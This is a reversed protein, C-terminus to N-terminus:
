NKSANNGHGIDRVLQAIGKKMDGGCRKTYEQVKMKESEETTYAYYEELSPEFGYVNMVQGSLDVYFERYRRKPDNAKNLSLVMAKGKDQMGMVAQISDFKNQFKRMDLLIKCDSNNLIAEKVIPSSIVDDLEQSVVIAEGFFKRVTKYLYKIFEAMGAKAIAKWAEEITIVKRIGKLKRMKSIFLEMIILTVVPFLIPHDKINDLEFVIFRQHFIDLNETGNLLYDFEGGRYYPRLVYLYSEIDFDKDKVKDEKLVHVFEDRVYEYYTNFCPFIVADQKSGDIVPSSPRSLKEYYLQLSISVAVYETRSFTEDDKKSLAALLTKISEKKETDLSDGEAIYFPNFRIPNKEQYTFYYGNVLQCLGSYSNGVDVILCHAGNEYYARQMHNMLMSKGSGSGGFVAKNRNTTIGQRMSWDSFDVWVPNGFRDIVRMRFDSNVSRYNSELNLLCSAQEAFTDFTENEPFDPENGPLGAWYIQPAGTTEQKAIADMQALGASVLTKLEKLENKNETWLMVNFHAKVPMRQASIAENLFENTADRSIANERSYSSLSHLRLSKAELQKMTKQPDDIFIFQNYLHNCRLLQGIASAFGVSYKSKDTSYKDYNIRSGCLSPLLEVDALSYLQVYDAGIKWDEKFQIDKILPQQENTLYCYRELLGAKSTTSAIADSKIRNLQIFGSDSLIREFQSVSDLFDQNKQPDLAEQPVISKRLLSSTASTVSKRASSRRSLMIYCKHNLFPREDFHRESARSLFSLDETAYSAKYQDTVFWDQKHFISSAPLVKIAKIWVQHFAEYDQDSLSFLEPLQAEFAVTVDAQHSLIIDREVKAIPFITELNIVSM